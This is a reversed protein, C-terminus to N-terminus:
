ASAKQAVVTHISWSALFEDQYIDMIAERCASDIEGSSGVLKNTLFPQILALATSVHHCFRTHIDTGTSINLMTELRHVPQCSAERLLLDMLPTIDPTKGSYEIAQRLLEMCHSCAQSNTEPFAWEVWLITGGPRCVRLFEKLLAPWSQPAVLPAIFCARVLDFGHDACDTLARLDGVVFRANALRMAGLRAARIAEPAADRGLAEMAPAHRAMAQVWEGRGCAVDLVRGDEVPRVCEPLLGVQECLLARLSLLLQLELSDHLSQYYELLSPPKM